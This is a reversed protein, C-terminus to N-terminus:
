VFGGLNGGGEALPLGGVVARNEAPDGAAHPGAVAVDDAQLTGAQAPSPRRRDLGDLAEHFPQRGAGQAIVRSRSRGRDARGPLAAPLELPDITFQVIRPDSHFRGPLTIAEGLREYPLCLECM